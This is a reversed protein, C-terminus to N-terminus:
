LTPSTKCEFYHEITEKLACTIDTFEFDKGFISKMRSTDPRMVNSDVAPIDNNFTVDGQFNMITKITEALQQVTYIGQQNFIIINEPLNVNCLLVCKEVMRIIDNVYILNLEIQSNCSIYLTDSHNCMCEDIKTILSAVIRGNTAFYDFRGFVNPLVLCLIKTHISSQNFINIQQHLINKSQLYGTNSCKDIHNTLIDLENFHERINSNFIRYSSFMIIKTVDFSRCCRMINTNIILNKSMIDFQDINKNSESSGILGCCNIITNPKKTHFVEMINSVHEVDLDNRNLYCFCHDILNAQFLKMNKGIFGNSGLVLVEM